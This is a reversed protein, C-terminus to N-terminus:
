GLLPELGERDFSSSFYSLIMGATQVPTFMVWRGSNCTARIGGARNWFDLSTWDKHRRGGRSAGAVDM